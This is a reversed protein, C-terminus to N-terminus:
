IQDLIAGENYSAASTSNAGRTCGTLNNGDIGTYTIQESGIKVTGSTTFPKSTSVPITTVSNNINSSIESTGKYDTNDSWSSGNYKYKYGWYNSKADVGQHLTANNSNVDLIIRELTDGDFIKTNEESMTITKSDEYLYISINNEKWVITQM